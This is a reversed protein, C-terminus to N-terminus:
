AFLDLRGAHELSALESELVMEPESDADAAGGSWSNRDAGEGTAQQEAFSQGSVDVDVLEVGSAEFMDRLRPLAAELAERVVAHHATFQVSAQDNQVQIRVEMPGLNAPNLKVQAGQMKQSVMWQIREGMDQGWNAQGFPTQLSTTPLVSSSVGTGTAVAAVNGGAVALLDPRANDTSTRHAGDARQRRFAAMLIALDSQRGEPAQPQQQLQELAKDLGTQSAQPLTESLSQKLVAADSMNPLQSGAAQPRLQQQILEALHGQPAVKDIKGPLSFVAGEAPTIGTVASVQSNLQQTLGFFSQAVQEVEAPQLSELSAPLKDLLQQGDMSQAVAADLTEQLLPLLKGGAPLEQLEAMLEGAIADGPSIPPLSESLATHISGLLAGFGGEDAIDHQNIPINEVLGHITKSVAGTAPLIPLSTSM